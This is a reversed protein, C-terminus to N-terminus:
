VQDEQKLGDMKLSFAEFEIYYTTRIAKIIQAATEENYTHSSLNRSAIMDMWAEGNQILGTQFATRTADKSGYINQVGQDHLFDKITNWALEHTFEFAQILGQQELKSLPRQQSLLVAEKFQAFAKLFSNFRQIWRIDKSSMPNEM